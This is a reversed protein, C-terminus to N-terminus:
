FMTYQVSVKDKHDVFDDELVEELVGGGFFTGVAQSDVNQVMMWPSSMCSSFVM